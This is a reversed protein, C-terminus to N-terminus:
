AAGLDLLQRRLRQGMIMNKVVSRVNLEALEFSELKNKMRYIVGLVASFKRGSRCIVLTRSHGSMFQLAEEITDKDLCSITLSPMNPVEITEGVLIVGSIQLLRINRPTAYKQCSVFLKNDVELPMPSFSDVLQRQNFIQETSRLFTYKRTFAKFGGDLIRVRNRADQYSFLKAFNNASEDSLHSVNGEDYVVIHEYKSLLGQPKVVYGERNRPVTQALIIHSEQWQKFSRCDFIILFNGDHLASRGCTSTQNILNYLETVSISTPNFDM